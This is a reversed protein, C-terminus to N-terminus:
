EIFNELINLCDEHTEVYSDAYTHGKGIRISVGKCVKFMDEDTVDDGFVFDPNVLDCIKDKSSSKVELVCKGSILNKGAIRRLQNFLSSPDFNVANRYHFSLGSKKTEIATSPTRDHYYKMLEHCDALCGGKKLEKWLGNERHQSGHEAFVEIEKPFWRDCDETGRGTCIILKCDDSDIFRKFINKLRETPIADSPQEEIKVLTGDYDALIVKKSNNWRVKADTLNTKKADKMKRKSLLDHYSNFGKIINPNISDVPIIEEIIEDKLDKKRIYYYEEDKGENAKIYVPVSLDIQKIKILMEAVPRKNTNESSYLNSFSPNFFLSKKHCKDATSIIKNLDEMCQVISDNEAFNTDLKIDYGNVKMFEKIYEDEGIMSGEINKQDNLGSIINKCLLDQDFIDSIRPKSFCEALEEYVNGVFLDCYIMEIMVDSYSEVEVVDFNKRFQSKLHGIVKMDYENYIRMNLIYRVKINSHVKLFMELHSADGCALVVMAKKPMDLSKIKCLTRSDFRESDSITIQTGGLAKKFHELVDIISFKEVYPKIIWCGGIEHNKFLFNGDFYYKFSELSESDQFFKQGKFMNELLRSYFPVREIFSHDFKMNRFAIRCDILEPLLFFYSDNAIILDDNKVIENIKLAMEKNFNLYSEFIDQHDLDQYNIEFTEKNMLKDYNSPYVLNECYELYEINYVGQFDNIVIPEPAMFRTKRLHWRINDQTPKDEDKRLLYIIKMPSLYKQNLYKKFKVDM